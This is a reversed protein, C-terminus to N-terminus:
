RTEEGEGPQIHDSGHFADGPLQAGVASMGEAGCHEVRQVGEGDLSLCVYLCVNAMGTTYVRIYVSILINIRYSLRHM